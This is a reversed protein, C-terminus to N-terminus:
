SDWPRKHKKSTIALAGFGIQTEPFWIHGVAAVTNAPVTYIDYIMIRFYIEYFNMDLGVGHNEFQFENM